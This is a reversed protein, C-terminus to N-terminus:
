GCPWRAKNTSLGFSYPRNWFRGFIGLANTKNPTHHHVVARIKWCKMIENSNILKIRPPLQSSLDTNTDLQVHLKIADHTLIEPQADSTESNTSYEKYYYSAFQALCLSDVSPITHAWTPFRPLIKVLDQHFWPLIKVHDQCSRQYSWTLDQVLDQLIM